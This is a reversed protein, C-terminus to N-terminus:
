PWDRPGVSLLMGDGNLPYEELYRAVTRTSVKDVAELRAGVSQPHDFCEIDDILQSFRSRPTEAELALTTRRRNKVRRIEEDRFGGRTIEDVQGRLADLMEEARPPDGYAYLAMIGCDAYPIWGVGAQSCIGKQVINWYCRSNSGSFMASIAEITEGHEHNQPVSPYVIVVAQQQFQPLSLKRAGDFHLTPDHTAERGPGRRWVGCYRAAAAFVEQPDINGIVLLVMNDPTYHRRTHGVMSEHKLGAITEKEGLIEHALPHDRFVERHVFESVHREFSDDSMAIEELIVNREMEFEEAPLAPQVMDALLEIQEVIRDAPVWGYYCTHDKSTFANYISGLEDFRINIDHWTRTATGKFCMHELFHSVGHLDPPEHRSGTHVLFGATASSVHPMCECVVRLGNPLTHECLITKM